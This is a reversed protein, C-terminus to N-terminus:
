PHDRTEPEVVLELDRRKLRRRDIPFRTQHDRAWSCALLNLADDERMTVKQYTIIEFVQYILDVLSTGPALRGVCIFPPRINPHFVHLPGLWMLVQAPDIFRLYDSPFQIGVQFRDAEAVEGGAAEVLGKCFFTAVYARPPRGTLPILEFLDSSRALATAEDYQRDLFGEFVPDRM